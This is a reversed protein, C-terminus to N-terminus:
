VEADELTVQPVLEQVAALDAVRTGEMAVTAASAAVAMRFAQRFPLGAVAAYAMAAVMTDGAGVSSRVEVAPPAAFLADPGAVGVAGEAGLSILVQECGMRIIIARAAEVLERRTPLRRKLLDEVEARNPKILFPGAALGHKLAPGGTDLFCKAGHAKAIRMLDAFITPPAAPPLSGSFVMVACHPAHVDIKRRLEELHEAMVRFGPENLETETGKEPDHIKLNVRTEGAVNVFDAPIGEAALADLVFRGNSGAVL